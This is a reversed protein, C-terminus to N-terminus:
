SPKRTIDMENLLDQLMVDEKNLNIAKLLTFAVKKILESDSPLDTTNHDITVSTIGLGENLHVGLQIYHSFTKKNQSM